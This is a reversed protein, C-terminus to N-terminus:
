SLDYGDLSLDYGDALEKLVGTIQLKYVSFCCDEYSNEGAAIQADKESVHYGNILKVIFVSSTEQNDILLWRFTWVLKEAKETM